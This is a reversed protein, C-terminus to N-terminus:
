ILYNTGNVESDIAIENVNELDSIMSALSEDDDVLMISDFSSRNSAPIPKSKRLQHSPVRFANLEDIYPNSFSRFTLIFQIIKEM